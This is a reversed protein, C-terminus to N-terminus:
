VPGGVAADARHVAQPSSGAFYHASRARGDACHPGYGATRRGRATRRRLSSDM